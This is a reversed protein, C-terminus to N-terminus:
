GIIYSSIITALIGLISTLITWLIGKIILRSQKLRDVEIVLGDKHNNGLTEDKLDLVTEKFVELDYKLNTISDKLTDVQGQLSHVDDKLSEIQKQVRGSEAHKFGLERDLCLEILNFRTESDTVM